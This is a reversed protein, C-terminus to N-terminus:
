YQQFCFIQSNWFRCMSFRSTKHWMQKLIKRQCISIENLWRRNQSVRLECIWSNSKSSNILINISFINTKLQFFTLKFYNNKSKNSVKWWISQSFARKRNFFHENSIITKRSANFSEFIKILFINTVFQIFAQEFYREIIQKFNEFTKTSHINSWLDSRFNSIYFFQKLEFSQLTHRLNFKHAHSFAKLIVFLWSVENMKWCAINLITSLIIIENVKTHFNRRIKSLLLENNHNEFDNFHKVITLNKWDNNHAINIKDNLSTM